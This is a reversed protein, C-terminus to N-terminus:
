VPTQPPPFAKEFDSLAKKYDAEAQEHKAKSIEYEEQLEEMRDRLAQYFSPAGLKYDFHDTWGAGNYELRKYLDDIKKLWEFQEKGARLCEKLLPNTELARALKRPWPRPQRTTM